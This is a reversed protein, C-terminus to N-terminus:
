LAQLVLLVDRHVALVVVKAESALVFGCVDVSPAIAHGIATHAEIVCM